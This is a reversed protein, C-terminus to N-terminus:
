EERFDFLQKPEIGLVDSLKFLVDFSPGVLGREIASIHTRHIDVLEALRSQSLRNKKRYYVVNLGFQIYRDEYEAKLREGGASHIRCPPRQFHFM